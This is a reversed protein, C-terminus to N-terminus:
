ASQALSAADEDSVKVRRQDEIKLVRAVVDLSDLVNV